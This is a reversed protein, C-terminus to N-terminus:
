ANRLKETLHLRASYLQFTDTPATSQFTVILSPYRMLATLLAATTVQVLNDDDVYFVWTVGAADVLAAMLDGVSVMGSSTMSVIGGNSIAPVWKTGDLGVFVASAGAVAGDTESVIGATTIAPAWVDANPSTLTWATSAPPIASGDIATVYEAALTSSM